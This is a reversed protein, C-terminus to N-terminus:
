RAEWHVIHHSFKGDSELDFVLYAPPFRHFAGGWWGGCVAGGCVYAVQDFRCDDIQHMHGSLALKVNPHDYFLDRVRQLNSMQWREPVDFGGKKNPVSDELFSTVTLAPAHSLVLVPDKTGEIESKMWAFQEDDIGCTRDEHFTDLMLFRWGGLDKRYYRHPMGYVALAKDKTNRFHDHNGLVPAVERGKLREMVVKSFNSFQADAEAESYNMGLDVDFVQDGGLLILDPKEKLVRDLCRSMRENQGSAPLHIDTMFLVRFTRKRPPELGIALSAASLSAATILTRRTLSM